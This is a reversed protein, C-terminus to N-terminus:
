PEEVRIALQLIIQVFESFVGNTLLECRAHVFIEVIVFDAFQKAQFPILLRRGTIEFIEQVLEMAALAVFQKRSGSQLTAQCRSESENKRSFM